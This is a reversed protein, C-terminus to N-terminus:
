IIGAGIGQACYSCQAQLQACATGTEQPSCDGEKPAYHIQLHIDQDLCLTTFTRGFLVSCAFQM